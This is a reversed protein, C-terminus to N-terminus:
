KAERERPKGASQAVPKKKAAHKVPAAVATTEANWSVLDTLPAMADPVTESVEQDVQDMLAADSVSPVERASQQKGSHNWLSSHSLFVALVLAAFAVSAAPMWNTLVWSRWFGASRDEVSLSPAPQGESWAVVATRFLALPERAEALKAQCDGCGELHTEEEAVPGEVLWRSFDDASLHRNKTETNM